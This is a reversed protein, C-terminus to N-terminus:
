ERDGRLLSRFQPMLIPNRNGGHWSSVTELKADRWRWWSIRRVKLLIKQVGALANPRSVIAIVTLFILKLDVFFTRNDVYFLGLRSKWPRIVQNYKLDANESGALVEGEDIRHIFFGHDPRAEFLRNEEDSLSADHEAQPRPGVLVMDGILVNWLQSFEDLKYRRITRGM